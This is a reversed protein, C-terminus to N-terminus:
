WLKWVLEPAHLQDSVELRIGPYFIDSNIGGSGWHVKM